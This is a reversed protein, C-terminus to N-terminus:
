FLTINFHLPIYKYYQVINHTTHRPLTKSKYSSQMGLAILRFYERWLYSTRWSEFVPYEMRGHKSINGRLLRTCAAHPFGRNGTCCIDSAGPFGRNGTCCIDSAGEGSPGSRLRVHINVAMLQRRWMLHRVAWLIRFNIIDTILHTLGKWPPDKLIAVDQMSQTSVTVSKMYVAGNELICLKQSITLLSCTKNHPNHECTQTHAHTRAWRIHSRPHMRPTHSRRNNPDEQM